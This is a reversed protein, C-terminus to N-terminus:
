STALAKEEQMRRYFHIFFFLYTLSFLVRFVMHPINLDFVSRYVLELYFIPILFAASLSIRVLPFAFRRSVWILRIVGVWLAVVGGLFSYYFLKIVRILEESFITSERSSFISALIEAITLSGLIVWDTDLAVWSGYFFLLHGAMIGYLWQSTTDDGQHRFYQQLLWWSHVGLMTLLLIGLLSQAFDPLLISVGLFGGSSVMGHNFRVSKGATKPPKEPHRLVPPPFDSMFNNLDLVENARKWEKWGRRWVLTSPTEIMKGVEELTYPGWNGGEKRVFYDRGTIPENKM